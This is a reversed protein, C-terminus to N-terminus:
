RGSGGPRVLVAVPLDALAESLAVGSALDTKIARGTFLERWLVASDADELTACTNEWREGVPPFGVRSSLRPVIVLAASKEHERIFAVANDAFKGTMALPRYDGHAFLGAQEGRYGLIARTVLLKIRGDHWNELLKRPDAGDISALAERRAAYDVPRRNDPDVLSFDWLDNGQYIDPVGPVTLKLVTQALSNIVGLQAIQAALPEIAASFASQGKGRRLIKEIFKRVADDWPENPQIWSSNVKAEKIAKTMYEQIRHVYEAHEDDSLSGFTPPWTGLLIQYLLYEENASPAPESEVETKHKRNLTSWSRLAQRWPVPLESLAVIRARTDEARKTDHTSSALMTHPWRQANHSNYRHFEDPSIGFRQPEGGVENLAVLRNYIYFATDELGKAMIPGTCQQFKM